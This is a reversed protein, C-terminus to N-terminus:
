LEEELLLLIFFIEQFIVEQIYVGVLEDEVVEQVMELGFLYGVLVMVMYVGNFICVKWSCYFMIDDCYIIDFGSKGFLLVECVVLFVEIVWFYYFEGQIIM